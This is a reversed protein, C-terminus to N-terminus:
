MGFDSELSNVALAISYGLDDAPGLETTGSVPILSYGLGDAIHCAEHVLVTLETADPKPNPHDLVVEVFEKPLKWKEIVWASAERRGVGFHCREMEDIDAGSKLAQDYAGPDQALLALRGIDHFLGAYYAQSSDRRCAEALHRAALACALNHRWLRRMAGSKGARKLLKSLSLTMILTAVRRSGLLALAQLTSSVTYRVGTLPSNALQLVEASLAADTELMDAVTQFSAPETTLLESVKSAVVPFPPLKKLAREARVSTDTPVVITKDSRFKPKERFIRVATEYLGDANM